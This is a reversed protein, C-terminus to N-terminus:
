ILRAISRRVIPPHIRCTSTSSKRITAKRWMFRMPHPMRSPRGNTPRTAWHVPLRASPAIQQITPAVNQRNTFTCVINSGSNVNAIVGNNTLSTGGGTCTVNELTWDNPVTETINYTGPALSQFLRGNPPTPTGAIDVYNIKTNTGGIADITLRGDLVPIQLTVTRYENNDSGIFGNIIRQGEVNIVHISDYPPQDGVSLTVTYVGNPLNYEWAASTAVGNTGTYQMHMITDYRQDTNFNQRDRGNGTINLPVHSAGNVSDERIWGYGRTNDFAAGTDAVYNPPIIAGVSQFNVHANVTAPASIDNDSLNFAGIGNTGSFAFSQGNAPTAEKVITIHGPVITVDISKSDTIVSGNSATASINITNTFPAAVNSKTCTYTTSDDVLLNQITTNCSGISSGTINISSFTFDGTNEITITFPVNAGNNVWTNPTTMSVYLDAEPQLNLPSRFTYTSNGGTYYLYNGIIFAVGSMEGNNNPDPLERLYEYSNNAPDYAIVTQIAQSWAREGGIIVIKNDIVINSLTIHHRPLDPLDAGVSWSNNAINYIQMDDHPVAPGDQGVQGGIYYINGNYYIGGAHNRAAPLAARTVWGAATNNLDLKWHETREARNIDTGGIFHLAHQQPAYVMIGAGRSGPLNPMDSYTDTQPDYRIVRNTAFLQATGSGNPPYGGAIYVYQGDTATAGHTVGNYPMDSIRTWTNAVPNFVYARVTPIWKNNTSDYGGFSYYYNGVAAGQGELVRYPQPAVLDWDLTISPATALAPNSTSFILVTSGLFLWLFLLMKHPLKQLRPVKLM